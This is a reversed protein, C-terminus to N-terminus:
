KSGVKLYPLIGIGGGGGGGGGVAAAESRQDRIGIYIIVTAWFGDQLFFILFELNMYTTCCILLKKFGLGQQLM